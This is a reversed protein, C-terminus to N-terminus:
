GASSATPPWSSAAGRVEGRRRDLRPRRLAEHIRPTRLRKETAGHMVQLIQVAYELDVLAGPSFKANLRAATGDEGAVQRARLERLEALDISERRTSWRTGSGSSRAASTGTGARRGQAARPGAERLLAVPRGRAYYTCFSELSCALPGAAGYPRLRLDIHFIGERKAHVLRLLERVVRDFFEANEISEPGGTSGSDSYVLLLEIDSAYGLAVGGMKGLGLIRTACPSGRWRARSASSSALTQWAFAAAADM